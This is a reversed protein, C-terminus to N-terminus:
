RGVEQRLARVTQQYHMVRSEINRMSRRKGDWGPANRCWDEADAWETILGRLRQIEDAADQVFKAKIDDRICNSFERLQDVIDNM